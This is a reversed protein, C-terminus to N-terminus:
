YMLDNFGFKSSFNLVQVFMLTVLVTKKLKTWTGDVLMSSMQTSSMFELWGDPAISVSQRWKQSPPMEDRKKCQRPYVCSYM